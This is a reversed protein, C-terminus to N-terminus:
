DGGRRTIEGGLEEELQEIELDYSSLENAQGSLIDLIEQQYSKGRNEESSNSYGEMKNTDNSKMNENELNSYEDIADVMNQIENPNAIQSGLSYAVGAAILMDVGNEVAETQYDRHVNDYDDIVDNIESQMEMNGINQPSIDVAMSVDIGATDLEEFDDCAEKLDKIDEPTDVPYIVKIEEVIGDIRNEEGDSQLEKILEIAYKRDAPNSWDVDDLKMEVNINSLDEGMENSVDKRIAKIYAQMAEKHERGDLSESYDEAVEDITKELPIMIVIAQHTNNSAVIDDIRRQISNALEERTQNKLSEPMDNVITPFKAIMVNAREEGRANLDGVKAGEKEMHYGVYTGMLAAMHVEKLQVAQNDEPLFAGIRKNLYEPNELDSPYVCSNYAREIAIQIELRDQPSNALGNWIRGQNLNKMTELIREPTLYHMKWEEEKQKESINRRGANEERDEKEDELNQNTANRENKTEMNSNANDERHENESNKNEGNEREDDIIKGNEDLREERGYMDQEEKTALENENNRASMEIRESNNLEENSITLRENYMAQGAKAYEAKLDNEEGNVRSTIESTRETEILKLEKLREYQEDTVEITIGKMVPNSAFQLINSAFLDKSGDIRRKIEQIEEHSLNSITVTKM